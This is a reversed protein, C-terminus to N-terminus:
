FSWFYRLRKWSCKNFNYFYHHFFYIFFTTDHIMQTISRITHLWYGIMLSSSFNRNLILPFWVCLTTPCLMMTAHNSSFSSYLTAHTCIFHDSPRCKVEYTTNVIWISPVFRFCYMNDNNNTCACWVGDESHFMFFHNLYIYIKHHFSVLM